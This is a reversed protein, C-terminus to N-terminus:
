FYFTMRLSGSPSSWPNGSDTDVTFSSSKGSKETVERVVPTLGSNDVFQTSIEGEGESFFGIGWGFEGAISLKPAFFYEAGIFGRVGIYFGTGSKDETTRSSASSSYPESLEWSSEVTSTPSQNIITMANGYDYTTKGSTFGILAEAGYLGKVRHKGRMKQIGASLLINNASIKQEDEVKSTPVNITDNDNDVFNTRKNSGFGLRVKGRYATNEDKMMFGTITMPIPSNNVYNWTPASNDTTGNFMNGIYSLIPDIDIALGWDDTEPTIQHGNKSTNQATAVYTCAALVVLLLTKKM